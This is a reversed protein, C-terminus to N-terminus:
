GGLVLRRCMALSLDSQERAMRALDADSQFTATRLLNAQAVKADIRQGLRIKEPGDDTAELLSIFASRMKAYTEAEPLRMLWAHEMMASYRGACTAFEYPLDIPTMAHSPLAACASIALALRKLGSMEQDNVM